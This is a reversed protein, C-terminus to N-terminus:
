TALGLKGAKKSVESLVSKVGKKKLALEKTLIMKLIESTDAQDIVTLRGAPSMECYLPLVTTKIYEQKDDPSFGPLFVATSSNSNNASGGLISSFFNPSLLSEMGRMLHKVMPFNNNMVYQVMLSKKVKPSLFGGYFSNSRQYLISLNCSNELADNTLSGARRIM